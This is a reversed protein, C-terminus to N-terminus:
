SAGGDDTVLTEAEEEVDKCVDQKRQLTEEKDAAGPVCYGHHWARPDLVHVDWDQLGM